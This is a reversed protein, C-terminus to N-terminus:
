LKVGAKSLGELLNDRDGELRLPTLDLCWRLGERPDFPMPGRWRSSLEQRFKEGARRAEPLEGLQALVAAELLHDYYPWRRSGRRLWKRAQDYNRKFYHLEVLDICFYDQEQVQRQRSLEYYTEGEDHRGLYVLATAISNLRDAELPGLEIAQELSREAMDFNHQWMLCWALALHAKPNQADLSLLREAYAIARARPADLSTGPATLFAGTNLAQILNVYAPSFESDLEIARELHQMAEEMDAHRKSAYFKTKGRLYHFYAQENETDDNRIMSQEAAEVKPVIVAAVADALETLQGSLKGAPFLANKSWLDIQGVANTLHLNVRFMEELATISGTLVYSVGYGQPDLNGNRIRTCLDTSLVRLERLGTLRASLEEALVNSLFELDRDPSHVRLPLVAVVPVGVPDPPAIAPRVAEKIKGPDTRAAGARTRLGQFLRETEDSLVFGDAALSAKVDKYVQILRSTQGTEALIRMRARAAIENGPDIHLLTEAAEAKRENGAESSALIAEARAMQRAAIFRREQELWEDFLPAVPDLRELLPGPKQLTIQGDPDWLDVECNEEVIWTSQKDSLLLDGKETALLRRLKYLAVRLSGFGNEMTTDPWILEVLDQRNVPSGINYLLYALIAQHKRSPPM